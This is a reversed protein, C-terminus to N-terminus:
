LKKIGLIRLQAPTPDMLIRVEVIRDDQNRRGFVQYTGDGYGSSFAVGVGEHGLKFNLQGFDHGDEHSVECAGRYSFERTPGYKLDEVLGQERADNISMGLEPCVDAYSGWSFPWVFNSGVLQPFKARGMATLIVPAHGPPAQNPIWEGDIYCPDCVMLQGSDVGVIGIRVWKTKKSKM